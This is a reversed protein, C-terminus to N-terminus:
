RLGASAACGPEETDPLRRSCRNLGNQIQYLIINRSEILGNEVLGKRFAEVYSLDHQNSPSGFPLFGIRALNESKQARSAQPPWVTAASVSIILERRNVHLGM